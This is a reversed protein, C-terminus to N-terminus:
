FKWGVFENVSFTAEPANDNEPTIKSKVYFTELGVNGAGAIDSRSDNGVFLATKVDIQQENILADFFRRDPKKAQQDSSFYISDIHRAINLVNMESETFIRQANSLLYVKKGAAKLGKLLEGTGPYVRLHETSLVRFFQGTHLILEESANVGKEVFIARFVDKIQIEASAEHSYHPDEELAQKLDVETRRILEGFRQKLEEPGYTASYYAYFLALKGWLSM